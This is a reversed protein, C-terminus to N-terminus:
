GVARGILFFALGVVGNTALGILVATRNRKWWTPAEARTALIVTATPHGSNGFRGLGWIILLLGIVAGGFFWIFSRGASLQSRLTISLFAVVFLFPPLVVSWIEWQLGGLPTQRDNLIEVIRQRAGVLTLDEHSEIAVAVPEALSVSLNGSETRLVLRNISSQSIQRLDNATVLPGDSRFDSTTAILGGLPRGVALLEDVDDLYLKVSRRPRWISTKDEPRLRVLGM